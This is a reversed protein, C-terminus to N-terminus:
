ILEMAQKKEDNIKLIEIKIEDETIYKTERKIM